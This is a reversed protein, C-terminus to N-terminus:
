TNRLDHISGYAFDVICTKVGNAQFTLLHSVIDLLTAMHIDAAADTFFEAYVLM